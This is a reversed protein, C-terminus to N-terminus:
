WHWVQLTPAPSYKSQASAASVCVRVPSTCVIFPSQTFQFVDGQPKACRTNNSKLRLSCLACLHPTHGGDLSLSKM